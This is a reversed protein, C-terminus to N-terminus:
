RHRDDQPLPWLRRHQRATQLYERTQAQNRALEEPSLQRKVKAPSGMALAGPPILAGPPVLGGAAIMAGAGVRAGDLVIAGIGIFAEDEISCGHLVARHGVLVDRGVLCPPGGRSVHLVSMDQINSRAGVAIVGVDGRIVCGYWVSVEDALDVEGAVLASPAVFVGEGLRPKKDAIAAIMILFVVVM